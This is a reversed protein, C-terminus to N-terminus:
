FPTNDELQGGRRRNLEDLDDPALESELAVAEDYLTPAPGALAIAEDSVFEECQTEYIPQEVMKTGTQVRKCVTSTFQVFFQVDEHTAFWMATTAGKEPMTPKFGHKRHIRVLKLFKEKDGTLTVIMYDAGSYGLDCGLMLLESVFPLLKAKHNIWARGFKSIQDHRAKIKDFVPDLTDDIPMATVSNM